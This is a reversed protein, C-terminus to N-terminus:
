VRYFYLQYLGNYEYYYNYENRREWGGCLGLNIHPTFSLNM